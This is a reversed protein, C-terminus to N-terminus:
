MYDKFDDLPADFDDSMKFMGALEGFVLPKTTNEVVQMKQQKQALYDLFNLVEEQLEASLVSFKSLLVLNEM